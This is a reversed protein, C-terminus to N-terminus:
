PHASSKPLWQEVTPIIHQVIVAVGQRNPHLGDEQLLTPQMAVSDLFFPYLPVQHTKQLRPYIADFAEVFPVGLNRPALMGALLVKVGSSQLRSLIADLNAYTVKPDIGRLADNIGLEVIAYDPHDALMWDLRALGGASTDGSVGANLVTVSLGRSALAQQLQAPFADAAPLNFGATLSDGLCVIRIPPAAMSPANVFVLLLGYAALWLFCRVLRCAISLM